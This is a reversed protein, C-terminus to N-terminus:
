EEVAAPPHVENYEQAVRDGPTLGFRYWLGLYITAVIVVVAVGVPRAAKWPTIDVDGSYPQEFPADQPKMMRFVFMTLLMLLCNLGALHLGQMRFGHFEGDITFGLNGGALIGFVFQFTIGVALAAIVGASPTRRSIVAVIMITILPVNTVSVFEILQGFLGQNSSAFYRFFLVLIVSMPVAVLAFIRGARVAQQDTAQPNLLGRYIDVGFLTSGSNLFSNFSSLIAGFITAAFFGVAWDPLVLKVLFGYSRNADAPLGVESPIDYTGSSVIHWAIIGPLVLYLPGLLKMLAAFLTGKQGDALNRAAFTRQVIGQNTCWYSTTLLTVGTFLTHWPINASSDGMPAMREPHTEIITALGQTVSGHGVFSLGCIPILLGGVALGLGNVTDSM